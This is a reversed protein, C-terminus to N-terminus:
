GPFRHPISRDWWFREGALPIYRCRRASREGLKEEGHKFVPTELNSFVSSSHTYRWRPLMRGQSRQLSRQTGGTSSFTRVSAVANLGCAALWECLPSIEGHDRVDIRCKQRVKLGLTRQM